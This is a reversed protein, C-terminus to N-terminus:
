WKMAKKFTFWGALAAGVCLLLKVIVPTKRKNEFKESNEKQYIDHALQKFQGEAVKDSYLQPKHLSNPPTLVGVNLVNNQVLNNEVGAAM